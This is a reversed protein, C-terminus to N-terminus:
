NQEINATFKGMVKLAEISGYGYFNSKAQTLNVKELLLNKFTNEDIINVTTGTDILFRISNGSMM